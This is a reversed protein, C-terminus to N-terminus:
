NRIPQQITPMLEKSATPQLDGETVQWMPKKMSCCVVHGSAEDFHTLLPSLSRCSSPIM